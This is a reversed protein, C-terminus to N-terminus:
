CFTRIGHKDLALLHEDGHYGNSWYIMIMIALIILIIRKRSSAHTSCLLNIGAYSHVVLDVAKEREREMGRVEWEAAVM